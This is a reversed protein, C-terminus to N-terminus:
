VFANLKVRIFRKEPLCHGCFLRVLGQVEVVPVGLVVVQRDLHLDRNGSCCRGHVVHIAVDIVLVDDM